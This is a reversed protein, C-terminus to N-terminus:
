GHDGSKAWDFAIFLVLNEPSSGWEEGEFVVLRDGEERNFEVKGVSDELREM